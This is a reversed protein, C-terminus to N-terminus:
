NDMDPAAGNKKGVFHFKPKGHFLVVKRVWGWGKVTCELVEIKPPTAHLVLHALESQSVECFRILVSALVM